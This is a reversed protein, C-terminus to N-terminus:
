GRSDTSSRAAGPNMRQRMAKLGNSRKDEYANM